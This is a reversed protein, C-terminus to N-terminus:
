MNYLWVLTINCTQIGSSETPVGSGPDGPPGQPPERPSARAWLVGLGTAPMDEGHAPSAICTACQVLVRHQVDNM